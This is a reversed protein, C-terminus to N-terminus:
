ARSPRDAVRLGNLVRTVGRVARALEGARAAQELSRVFGRLNVVGDLTEVQIQTGALAQDGALAREVEQRISVDASGPTAQAQSARPVLSGAALLVVAIWAAVARRSRM